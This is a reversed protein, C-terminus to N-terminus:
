AQPDLRALAERLAALTVPKSVLADVGEPREGRAQMLDGFGTLMIIPTTIGAARIRGALEDGRMGPMAFDTFIVDVRQRGLIEIAERGQTCTDVTHGDQRLSEVLHERVAPEDEVVLVRLSGSTVLPREAAGHGQRPTGVPLTMQVTTGRGEESEVSVNGGHRQAIGYVMALGLGTGAAGKTTFFPEFVRRLAEPSMGVGTDQVAITVEDGDSRAAVTLAGGAPMADVANFILNVLAERLSSPDAWITLGGAATCSASIERGEASAQDKWRPQTLALTERLLEGLDVPELAPETQGQRYFESLRRVVHAADGAGTHIMQLYRRSREEDRLVAPDNLMLEAFGLVPSLSNNLDHAIGSAMQGLARLREREVLQSQAARLATLAQELQENKQALAREAELRETMDSIIVVAGNASGDPRVRPAISVSVNVLSGDKRARRRPQNQVVEGGVLTRWRQALHRDLEDLPIITRPGGVFPTGVMEGATWGFLKEAAPNWSDTINEQTVGIIASPSNEILQRLAREAELRETLDSMIVVSGNTSGDPRVRPAISVSVDVLSGDKRVRRLPQNQIIEGAELRRRREDLHREVDGSPIISRPTGHLPTRVMEEATWGFLKEAAPNWSDILYDDTVGIIASPSSEILQLLEGEARKREAIETELERTRQEGYLLLLRNQRIVVGLAALTSFRRREAQSPPNGSRYFVLIAGPIRERGRLPMAFGWALDCDRALGALPPAALLDLELPQLAGAHDALAAALWAAAAPVAAAVARAMERDRGEVWTFCEPAQPDWVTIAAYDAGAVAAIRELMYRRLGEPSDRSILRRCTEAVTEMGEELKQAAAILLDVIQGREFRPLVEEPSPQLHSSGPQSVRLQWAAVNELLRRVRAQLEDARYPKAIFNDAGAELAEVLDAIRDRGTLMFVPIHRTRPDQKLWRCLEFGDLRPMTVDSVVLDFAGNTAAAYAEVGDRTVAVGYGEEELLTQLQLAQTPSDEVILIQFQRDKLTM